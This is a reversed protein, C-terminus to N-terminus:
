SGVVFLHWKSHQRHLTSMSSSVALINLTTLYIESFNKQHYVQFEGPLEFDEDDPGFDEKSHKVYFCM